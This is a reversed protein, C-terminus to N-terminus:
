EENLEYGKELKTFHWLHSFFTLSFAALSFALVLDLTFRISLDYTGVKEVNHIAVIFLFTLSFAKVCTKRLIDTIFGEPEYDNFGGKYRLYILRIFAPAAFAFALLAIVSEIVYFLTSTQGETLYQLADALYKMSVLFTAIVIWRIINELKNIHQQDYVM